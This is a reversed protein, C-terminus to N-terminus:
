DEEVLHVTRYEHGTAPLFKEIVDKYLEMRKGDKVCMAGVSLM